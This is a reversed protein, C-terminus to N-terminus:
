EQCFGHELSDMLFSCVSAGTEAQLLLKFHRHLSAMLRRLPDSHKPMLQFNITRLESDLFCLLFWM